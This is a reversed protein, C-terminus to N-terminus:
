DTIDIEPCADRIADLMAGRETEDMAKLRKVWRCKRRKIKERERFNGGLYSYDHLVRPRKFNFWVTEQAPRGRTPAQYTESRWDSLAAAYMESDYGSIMVRCSAANAAELFRTHDDDTMEFEYIDRTTRRTHRVYPPDAYVLERGKYPYRRMLEIGDGHLLLIFNRSRRQALATVTLSIAMDIGTVVRVAADGSKALTLRAEELAPLHLDAGISVRALRKARLIAGGGLFPEIYADHPPMMNILRQFIGAGAKGGPYGM